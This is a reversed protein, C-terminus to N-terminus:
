CRASKRKRGIYNKQEMKKLYDIVDPVKCATDGLNVSVRGIKQAIAKAEETMTAIYGGVCLVFTNKTYRVRNSSAHIDKVISNLLKKIMKLDLEEDPRTSIISSLTAWGATAINEKPSQIWELALDWGLPSEAAVFPVAYESIMYWSSNKAWKNLDAKTMKTEDGILGALYMADSIGSDYLGIALEHNKKIRKVIKKMDGVKVGYQNAPAGHKVLVKRTQESGMTELEKLIKEVTEM